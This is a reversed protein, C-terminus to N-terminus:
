ILAAINIPNLKAHHLVAMTISQTEMTVAKQKILWGMQVSLTPLVPKLLSPTGPAAPQVYEESPQPTILPASQANLAQANTFLSPSHEPSLFLIILPM